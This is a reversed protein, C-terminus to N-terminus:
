SEHVLREEIRVAAFTRPMSRRVGAPLNRRQTPICRISILVLPKAVLIPPQPGFFGLKEVM